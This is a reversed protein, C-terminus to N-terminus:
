EKAADGPTDGSSPQSGDGTRFLIHHRPQFPQAKGLRIVVYGTLVGLVIGSPTTDLYAGGAFYGAVLSTMLGIFGGLVLGAGIKCSHKLFFGTLVGTAFGLATSGLLMDALLDHSRWAAYAGAGDVFGLVTGAITGLIPRKL